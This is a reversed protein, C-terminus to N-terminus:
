NGSYLAQDAVPKDIYGNARVQAYDRVRRLLRLAVPPTGRGPHSAIELAGEPDLKVDLYQLAVIEKLADLFTM